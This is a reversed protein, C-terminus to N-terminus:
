ISKRKQIMSIPIHHNKLQETYRQSTYQVGQDSHHILGGIDKNWRNQLTMDLVNLTLQTDISCSLSWGICRRNFTDLIVSLYVFEKPLQICTIDSAWDQNLQTIELDKILNPYVSFGHDSDTTVPKFMKKAYILDDEKMIRLIKKHNVLVGQRQLENTIRRYRYQPYEVAIRHINDQLALDQASNSPHQSHQTVRQYNSSRNVNLLQSARSLSISEDTSLYHQIFM